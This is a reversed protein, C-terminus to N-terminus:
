WALSRPVVCHCYEEYSFLIPLVHPTESSYRLYVEAVRRSYLTLPIYTDILLFKICFAGVGFGGRLSSTYGYFVIHKIVSNQILIVLNPQHGRSFIYAGSGM